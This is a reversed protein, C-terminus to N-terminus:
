TRTEHNKETPVIFLLSYLALLVIAAGGSVALWVPPQSSILNALTMFGVGAAFGFAAALKERRSLRPRAPDAISDIKEFVSTRAM